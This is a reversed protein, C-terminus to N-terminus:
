GNRHNCMKKIIKDENYGQNEKRDTNYGYENLLGYKIYDIRNDSEDYSKFYGKSNNM